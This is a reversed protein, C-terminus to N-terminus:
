RATLILTASFLFKPGFAKEESVRSVATLLIPVLWDPVVVKTSLASWTVLSTLDVTATCDIPGGVTSWFEIRSKRALGYKYAPPLKVNDSKLLETRREKLM